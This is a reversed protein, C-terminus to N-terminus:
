EPDGIYFDLPESWESTVNEGNYRIRIKYDGDPISGDFSLVEKNVTDAMSSWSVEDTFFDRIEWDTSVHTENVGTFASGDFVGDAPFGNVEETTSVTPTAISQEASFELWDSWESYGFRENFYRVCVRYNVNNSLEATLTYSELDTANEDEELMVSDDVNEIEWASLDHTASINSSIGLFHDTKRYESSTFTADFISVKTIDGDYYIVAKDIYDFTTDTIFLLEDSWPSEITGARYRIRIKYNKSPELIDFPLTIEELNDVDNHNEFVLTDTDVDLIEWDTETHVESDFDNTYVSGIFHPANFTANIDEESNIAITPQEIIGDPVTFEGVDSWASEYARDSVDRCRWIYTTSIDLDQEIQHSNSVAINDYVPTAFDVDTSKTIQFQRGELSDVSVIPAYATATLTPRVSFATDSNIPSVVQPARVEILQDGLALPVWNSSPPEDNNEDMKSMYLNGDHIVVRDKVFPQGEVDWVTLGAGTGISGANKSSGDSYTILLDGSFLVEADTVSVGDEGRVKGSDIESDNSMHLILNDGRIETSQVFRGDRGYVNGVNEEVGDGYEIILEGVSGDDNEDIRVSFVPNMSVDGADVFTTEGEADILTTTLNGDTFTMESIGVGNGDRGMVSNTTKITSADSLEFSLVGSEEDISVGTISVGVGPITYKTPDIPEVDDGDNMTFVLDTVDIAINDILIGDTGDIGKVDSITISDNPADLNTTIVLDNGDDSLAVSEVSKGDTGKIAEIVIDPVPVGGVDAFEITIDNEVDDYTVNTITNEADSGKIVPFKLPEADISNAIVLEEEEKDYTISNITDGDEGRVKPIVVPTPNDEITITLDNSDGDFGIGDLGKGIVGKIASLKYETADSLKFVVDENDDIFASDFTTGNYAPLTHTTGGNLSTKIIIEDNLKEISTITEGDKPEPFTYSYPGDNPVNTTLTITRTEEDVTIEDISRGRVANASVTYNTEGDEGSIDFLLDRDNDDFRVDTITDGDKGYISSITHETGDNLKFVVDSDENLSVDELNVGDNLPVRLETGDGINTTIVLDNEVKEVGTISNGDQPEPFTFSYPGEEPVNTDFSITRTDEDLSLDQVSRGRVMPVTVKSTKNLHDTSLDFVLDRTNKDFNVDTIGDGDFAAVRETTSLETGDDFAMTLTKDSNVTLGSANQTITGVEVDKTGDTLDILITGEEVRANEITIGDIGRVRGLDFVQGDSLTISLEGDVNVEADTEVPAMIDGVNIDSIDEDDFSFFLKGETIYAGSVGRGDVGDTGRIDNTSSIVTNDSLTASLIGTESDVEVSDLTTQDVGTASIENGETDTFTLTGTLSDFSVSDLITGDDGKVKGLNETQFEGDVSIELELEGGATINAKTVAVDANEFITTQVEGLARATDESSLKVYLNNDTDDIYVNEVSVGDTGDDGDTGDTGDEGVVRGVTHDGSSLNLVLDKGIIEAGDVTVGSADLIPVVVQGLNYQTGDNRYLRFVGAADFFGAITYKGDAGKEGRVRGVNKTTGDSFIVLLEDDNNIEADTAAVGGFQTIDGADIESNDSLTFFLNGRKINADTISVADSGAVNNLKTSRGDQLTFEVSGDTKDFTIDEVGVGDEPIIKGLDRPADDGTLSVLLHGEENIDITEISVGDAGDLDGNTLKDGLFDRVRTSLTPINDGDVNVPVDLEGTLVEHTIRSATNADTVSDQMRQILNSM